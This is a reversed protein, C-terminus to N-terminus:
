SQMTLEQGTLAFFLNQLQHVYFKNGKNWLEISDAGGATGDWENITLYQGIHISIYRQFGRNGGLQISYEGAICKFGFKLLWEHTLPIPSNTVKIRDDLFSTYDSAKWTIIDVGDSNPNRFVQTQNVLNGIRLETIEM